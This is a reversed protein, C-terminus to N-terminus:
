PLTGGPPRPRPPEHTAAAGGRHPHYPVVELVEGEVLRHQVHRWFDATLIEGHVRVFAARQSDDFSLFRLVTEPFIDNDNVHFWAEDRMEDEHNTAEPLDRFRC